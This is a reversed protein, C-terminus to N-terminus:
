LYVRAIIITITCPLLLIRKSEREGAIIIIITSGSFSFLVVLELLISYRRQTDNTACELVINGSTWYYTM